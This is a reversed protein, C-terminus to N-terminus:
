VRRKLTNYKKKSRIIKEVRKQELPARKHDNLDNSLNYILLTEEIFSIKDGAMELMPFMTALDSATTFFKGNEMLDGEKISKFLFSKFTKLHSTVWPSKRYDRKKFIEDPIKKSYIGTRFSPFERYSGYTLWCEEERYKSELIKLVDKNALWDDGDLEVIIDEESCFDQVCEYFNKLKYKKEKNSIYTFRNDIKNKIIEESNDTSLDNILYCHFNDHDQQKVSDICKGIWKECNYFPVIIKFSQM